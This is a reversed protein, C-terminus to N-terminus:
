IIIDIKIEYSFVTIAMGQMSTKNFNFELNHCGTEQIFKNIEDRFKSQLEDAKERVLTTEM